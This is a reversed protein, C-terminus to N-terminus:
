LVTEVIVSFSCSRCCLLLLQKIVMVCSLRHQGPGATLFQVIKNASLRVAWVAAASLLYRMQILSFIIVEEASQRPVM